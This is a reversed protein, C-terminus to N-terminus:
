VELPMPILCLFSGLCIRLMTFLEKMWYFWIKIQAVVVFTFDRDVKLFPLFRVRWEANTEKNVVEATFDFRKQEADFSHKKYVFWNAITGDPRLAYSEVSDVTNKEAFYPINAIVRWDGMFRPLDVMSVTRLPSKPMRSIPPPTTVPHQPGPAPGACSSLMVVAGSIVLLIWSRALDLLPIM